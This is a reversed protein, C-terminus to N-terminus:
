KRYPQVITPQGKVSSQQVVSEPIPFYEDEGKDWEYGCFHPIHTCEHAYYADMVPDAIGWRVLDFRRHGEMALELKREFRIANRAFDVSSFMRYPEIKYDAALKDDATKVVSNEARKRVQDVYEVAKQLGAAGNAEM